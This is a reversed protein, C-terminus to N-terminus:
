FACQFEEEGNKLIFAFGVALYTDSPKRSKNKPKDDQISFM